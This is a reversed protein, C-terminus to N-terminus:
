SEDLCLIVFFENDYIRFENRCMYLDLLDNSIFWSFSSNNKEKTVSLHM